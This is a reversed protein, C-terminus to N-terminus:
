TAMIEAWMSRVTRESVKALLAVERQVIREGSQRLKAVAAAVRRETVARRQKASVCGALAQRDRKDLGHNIARDRGRQRRQRPCYRNQMFDTVSRAIWGVESMPLPNPSTANLRAAEALIRDANCEMRQYCWFRLRDFLNCNRGVTSPESWGKRWNSRPPCTALTEEDALAEVVARLEAPGDGPQTLWMLETGSEVYAEWALPTAPHDGRFMRPGGLYRVLGTPCKILGVFPLANGRLAAALLQHALQALAIPPQRATDGTLVPTVLPLISHSRGSWPDIVLTPKPCGVPLKAVLDPGDAHDIDICLANVRQDTNWAIWPCTIAQDLPLRSLWRKLAMTRINQSAIPFLPLRSLMIELFPGLHPAATFAEEAARARIAAKCCHRPDASM